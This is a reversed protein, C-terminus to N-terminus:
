TESADNAADMDESAALVRLLNRVATQVSTDSLSSYSRMLEFLDRRVSPETEMPDPATDVGTRAVDAFLSSVPVNLTEAIQYLRGATLSSTGREYKTVQQMSVGLSQALQRQSLGLMRRREAIRRGVYADVLDHLKSDM